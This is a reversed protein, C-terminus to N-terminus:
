MQIQPSILLDMYKDLDFANEAHFITQCAFYILFLYKKFWLILYDSLIDLFCFYVDIKDGWLDM